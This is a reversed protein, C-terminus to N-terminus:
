SNVDRNWSLYVVLFSARSVFFAHPRVAAACVFMRVNVLSRFRRFAKLLVRLVEQFKEARGCM